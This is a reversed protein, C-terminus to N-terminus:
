DDDAGGSLASLNKRKRQKTGTTSSNITSANDGDVEGGFASAVAKDEQKDEDECRYELVMNLLDIEKKKSVIIKSASEAEKALSENVQYTYGQDVLYQQRKSSFFMEKTDTSVLTYFFANFGGTPNPKPRLIRGM